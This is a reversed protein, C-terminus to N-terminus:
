YASVQVSMLKLSRRIVRNSGLGAYRVSDRHRIVYVLSEPVLLVYLDLHLLQPAVFLGLVHLEPTVRILMPWNWTEGTVRQIDEALPGVQERDGASAPIVTLALLHGLTSLARRCRFLFLEGITSSTSSPPGATAM